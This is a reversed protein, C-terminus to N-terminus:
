VLSSNCPLLRSGKPQTAHSERLFDDVFKWMVKKDGRYLKSNDPRGLITSSTRQSRSMCKINIKCNNKNKIDKILM